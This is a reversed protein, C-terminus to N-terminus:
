RLLAERFVRLSGEITGGRIASVRALWLALFTTTPDSLARIELVLCARRQHADLTASLWRPCPFSGLAALIDPTM